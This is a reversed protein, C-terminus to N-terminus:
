ADRWRSGDHFRNASAVTPRVEYFGSALRFQNSEVHLEGVEGKTAVVNSWRRDPSAAKGVNGKILVGDIGNPQGSSNSLLFVPYADDQEPDGIFWNGSLDLDAIGDTTPEVLVTANQRHWDFYEGRVQGGGSAWHLAVPFPEASQLDSFYHNGHLQNGGANVEIGAVTYGSIRNYRLINDPSFVRVGVNEAGEVNTRILNDSLHCGFGPVGADGLQVAAVRCNRIYCRSCWSHAETDPPASLHVGIDAVAAGGVTLDEVSVGERGQARILPAAAPFGLESSAQLVSGRGAGALATFDGTVELPRALNYTGVPIHVIGGGAAKASEIATQIGATDDNEGDGVAGHSRVDFVLSPALLGLASVGLFARRTTEQTM